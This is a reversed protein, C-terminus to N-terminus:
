RQASQSISQDRCIAEEGVLDQGQLGLDVVGLVPGEDLQVLQVGLVLAHAAVGGEVEDVAHRGDRLPAEDRGGIGGLDAVARRAHQDHVVLPQLQQPGSHHGHRADVVHAHEAVVGHDHQLRRQGGGVVGHLPGAHPQVVDVEEFHVFGKGPLPLAPTHTHTYTHQIGSGIVSQESDYM